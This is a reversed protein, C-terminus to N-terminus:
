FEGSANEFDGREGGAGSQGGLRQVALDPAASAQRRLFRGCNMM